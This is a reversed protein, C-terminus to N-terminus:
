RCSELLIMSHNRNRSQNYILINRLNSPEKEGSLIEAPVFQNRLINSALWLAFSTATFYEGCLHIFYGCPRNKLLNTELRTYVHDYRIDGNNGMLCLDLDNVTCQYRNLFDLLRDEIAVDDDTDFVTSVGKVEAYSNKGQRDTLVFFAAGEGPISGKSGSNILNLSNVPKRKWLGFRKTVAYLNSTMEDVGGILINKCINERLLMSADLLASEFSLAGHVYTQNYNTCKLLLAIQSAITNHTSFIFSTPNLFKEQDTIISTLFKETDTVCGMGSGIIIADPIPEVSDDLAMLSATTGMKVVRSM